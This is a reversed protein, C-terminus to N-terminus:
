QVKLGVLSANVGAVIGYGNQVNSYINVPDFSLNVKDDQRQSYTGQLYRYASATLGSVEVAMYPATVEKATQIVFVIAKGNIREDTILIESYYANSIVDTFNNNYSPDLRCKVTDARNLVLTGNSSDAKYLRIRYNNTENVPDTLTFRVRNINYEAHAETLQPRTPTSDTAEVSTLGDALVRIHYQRSTKAAAAVYYGRGNIVQWQPAPLPIGDEELMVTAKSLEPFQLNGAERVQKSQTVRIYILSDPQILSNVVIKDGAYPIYMASKKECAAFLVVLMISYVCRM